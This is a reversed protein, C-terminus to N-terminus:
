SSIRAALETRTRVGLKGYIHGLHTKVTDRSIFMRNAIEPNSLGQAALEAVRAETPTLADPPRVRPGRMRRAWELAEELTLAPAEPLRAELAAWHEPEPVVRAVGMDGRAQAATALLRAADEDYGLGAAIEGLADLCGPVWTLHGGEACADLHALAHQQATPYDGAGRGARALTLRGRTALLRNGYAESM